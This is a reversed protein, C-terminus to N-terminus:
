AARMLSQVLKNTWALNGAVTPHTNDAQLLASDAPGIWAEAIPDLFAVVNPAALAAAKIVDRNALRGTPIAAVLGQPGTVILKTVPSRTAIGAFLAAAATGVTAAAIADDNLGGIILCFEPAYSALRALRTPGGFPEFTGGNNVYGTGGIGLRATDWGMAQGFRYFILDNAALGGAGGVWSDGLVACRPRRAPSPSVSAGAPISLGGFQAQSYDVRITRLAVSPFVMDLWYAQGGTSGAATTYGALSTPQGDAYVRLNTSGASRNPFKIAFRDGYFLFEVSLPTQTATGPDNVTNIKYIQGGVGVDALVSGIHTVQATTQDLYTAYVPTNTPGTLTGTPPAAM